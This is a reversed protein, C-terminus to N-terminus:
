DLVAASKMAGIQWRKEQRRAGMSIQRPLLAVLPM